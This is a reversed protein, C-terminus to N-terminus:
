VAEQRRATFGATTLAGIVQMAHEHDRTQLVFEVVASQVPLHTFMRQHHVEEINADTGAICATVAALAGPLDTLEVRIRTLRGARVLGREIIDALLLPDGDALTGTVPAVDDTVASITPSGLISDRWLRCLRGRTSALAVIDSDREVASLM